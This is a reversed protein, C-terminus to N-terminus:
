TPASSSREGQLSGVLTVLEDPPKPRHRFAAGKRWLRFGQWHIGVIVRITMLPLRIVARLLNMDTLQIRTAVHTAVLVRENGVSERIVLDFREGPEHLRFEYRAKMDIFPSVYFLKECEQRILGGPMAEAEVPFLYGHWEGFTNRVEYLIAHLRGSRNHCFWLSLPNFVYGFLRPFCLLRVSGGSPDLGFRLLQNDIWQRLATGDKPGHDRDWVSVVNWRNHSFLRRGRDLAPLDDLDILLSFVRYTFSHAIRDLRRHM